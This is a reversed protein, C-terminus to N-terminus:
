FLTFTVGLADSFGTSPSAAPDYFWYQFYWTDGPLIPLNGGTGDPILPRNLLVRARGTETIFQRGGLNRYAPSGGICFNGSYLPNTLVQNGRSAMFTGLGGEPLGTAHFNLSFLATTPPGFIGIRASDGSSNAAAPSCYRIGTEECQDLTNNQNLDFGQGLLLDCSDGVGNQDCDNSSLVRAAMRGEGAQGLSGIIVHHRGVALSRGVGIGDFPPSAQPPFVQLSDLEYLGFETRRYIFIAPEPGQATRGNVVFVGGGADLGLPEGPNVEFTFGAPPPIAQVEVWSTGGASAAYHRVMGGTRAFIRDDDMGFPGRALATLQVPPLFDPGPIRTRVRLPWPTTFFERSTVICRQNLGVVKPSGSSQPEFITKFLQWGAPDKRYCRIENDITVAVDDGHIAARVEVTERDGVQLGWGWLGTVPDREVAWAEYSSGTVAVAVARGGDLDLDVLRTGQAPTVVVEQTALWGGGLPDREYIRLTDLVGGASAVAMLLDGDVAMILKSQSTITGVSPTIEVPLCPAPGQALAVALLSLM